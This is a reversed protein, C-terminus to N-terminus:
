NPLGRDDYGLIQDAPRRDRVPISILRQQAETLIKSATRTGDQIPRQRIARTRPRKM